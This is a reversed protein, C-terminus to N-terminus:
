KASMNWFWGFYFSFKSMHGNQFSTQSSLKSSLTGCDVCTYMYWTHEMRIQKPWFCFLASSYMEWGNNFPNPIGETNPGFSVFFTGGYLYCVSYTCVMNRIRSDKNTPAFKPRVNYVVFVYVWFTPTTVTPPCYTHKTPRTTHINNQTWFFSNMPLPYLSNELFLRKRNTAGWIRQSM